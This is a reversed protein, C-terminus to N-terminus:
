INMVILLGVVTWESEEKQSSSMRIHPGILQRRAVSISPGRVGALEGGRKRAAPGAAQCKVVATTFLGRFAAPKWRTQGAARKAAHPKKTEAHVGREQLFRIQRVTKVVESVLETVMATKKLLVVQNSTFFDRWGDLYLTGNESSNAPWTVGTHWASVYIGFLTEMVSQRHAKKHVHAFFYKMFADFGKLSTQSTKVLKATVMVLKKISIIPSQAIWHTM